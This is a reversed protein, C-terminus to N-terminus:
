KPVRASFESLLAHDLTPIDVGPHLPMTILFAERRLFWVTWVPLAVTGLLVGAIVLIRALRTPLHIRFPLSFNM